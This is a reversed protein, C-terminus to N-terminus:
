FSVVGVQSSKSHRNECYKDASDLRVFITPSGVEFIIIKPSWIHNNQPDYGSFNPFGQMLLVIILRWFCPCTSETLGVNLLSLILWWFCLCTSTDRHGIDYKFLTEPSPCSPSVIEERIALAPTGLTPTPVGLPTGLNNQSTGLHNAQHGNRKRM